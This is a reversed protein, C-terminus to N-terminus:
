GPAARARFVRVEAVNGTGERAANLIDQVADVAARKTEHGLAMYVRSTIDTKHGLVTGIQKSTFGADGLWSGFSRRLDHLRLHPLGAHRRIRQWAKAVAQLPQGPRRGAFVFTNTECRPFASLQDVITAPLPVVRDEGNKTDRFSVSSDRGALTVDDWRLSLAESKRCGLAILFRFYARVHVDACSEVIVREIQPVQSLELRVQRVREPRLRIGVCPNRSDRSFRGGPDVPSDDEQWLRWYLAARLSHLSRNAVYPSPFSEHWARVESRRLSRWPRSGFTPFINLEAERLLVKAQKPRRSAMYTLLVDRVTGTKADLERQRKMALPDAEETEVRLLETRARRRADDLGLISTDGLTLLRKCGAVRYSLVFSKRGSPFVRLGLGVPDDDWM